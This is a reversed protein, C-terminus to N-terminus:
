PVATTALRWAWKEARSRFEPFEGWARRVERWYSPQIRQITGNTM